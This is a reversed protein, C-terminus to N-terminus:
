LLIRGDRTRPAAGDRTQRKLPFTPRPMPSEPLSAGTPDPVSSSAGSAHVADVLDPRRGVTAGTRLRVGVHVLPAGLFQEVDAVVRTEVQELLARVDSRDAIDIQVLMEPRTRDGLFRVTASGVDPLEELEAQVARAVAATEVSSSGSDAHSLGYRRVRVRPPVQRVLWVLGIVLAVAGVAVLLWSLWDAQWARPVVVMPATPDPQWWGWRDPWSGRVALIWGGALVCVLGVVALRVRDAGGSPSRM